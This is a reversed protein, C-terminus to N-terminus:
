GCECARPGKVPCNAVLVLPRHTWSHVSGCRHFNIMAWIQPTVHPEIANIQAETVARVPSTERAKGRQLGSVSGLARWVTEPVM